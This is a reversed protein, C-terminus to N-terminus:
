YKRNFIESYIFARKADSKGSLRIRETAQPQEEAREQPQAKSHSIKSLVREVPRQKPVTAARRVVTQQVVPQQPAEMTAEENFIEITPFVEGAVPKGDVDADTSSLSKVVHFMSYVFAAIVFFLLSEM